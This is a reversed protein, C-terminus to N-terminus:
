ITEIMDGELVNVKSTSLAYTFKPHGNVLFTKLDLM